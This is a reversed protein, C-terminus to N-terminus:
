LTGRPTLTVPVCPTLAGPPVSAAFTDRMADCLGASSMVAGWTQQAEVGWSSGGEILSAPYCQSLVTTKYFPFREPNTDRTAREYGLEAQRRASCDGLTTGYGAFRRGLYTEVDFAWVARAGPMLPALAQTCGALSVSLLLAAAARPV